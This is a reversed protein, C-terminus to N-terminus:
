ETGQIESVIDEVDVDGICDGCNGDRYHEAIKALEIRFGTATELVDAAGGLRGGTWSPDAKADHREPGGRRERM